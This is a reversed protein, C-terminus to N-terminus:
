AFVFGCSLAMLCFAAQEEEGLKRKRQWRQKKLVSPMQQFLVEGSLGMINMKMRLCENTDSNSSSSSSEASDRKLDQAKNNFGVSGARRKRYRIGCANCLTQLVCLCVQKTWNTNEFLYCLIYTLSLPIYSTDDHSRPSSLFQCSCFTYGHSAAPSVLCFTWRSFPTAISFLSFSGWILVLM